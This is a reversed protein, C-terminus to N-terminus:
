ERSKIFALYSAAEQRSSVNLKELIRHVHNKVTGVEVVLRSAIEQNTLGESIFQLVELERSTLRIDSDIKNEVASFVRALRFLREMMAGAMRTSVHAEGKQALRIVDILEKLSSDKLIYGAAGAEIYRLAHHQNEESLGLIVVKTSPSCEMATQTFKLAQQDPLDANVLAVDVHQRQLFDLAAEASSVFGTVQMGPEDELVSAFLNAILRVEIVLLVKIPNM